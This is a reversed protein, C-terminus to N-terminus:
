AFQNGVMKMAQQRLLILMAWAQMHRDLVFDAALFCLCQLCGQRARDLVSVELERPNVEEPISPSGPLLHFPEVEASMATELQYVSPKGARQSRLYITQTLGM